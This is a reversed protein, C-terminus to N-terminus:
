RLPHEAAAVEDLYEDEHGRNRMTILLSGIGLLGALAAFALGLNMAAREAEPSVFALQSPPSQSVREARVAPGAPDTIVGNAVGDADYPGGDVITFTVTTVTVGDVEATGYTVQDDFNVFGSDGLYKRYTWRSTDYETDWYHTITASGGVAGCRIDVAHLGLEYNFARDQVSLEVETHSDVADIHNCEGDAETVVYRGLQPNEYTTVNVQRSDRKGDANADGNNPGLDEVAATVNDGDDIRIEPALDDDLLEPQFGVSVGDADKCDFVLEFDGEFWTLGTVFFKGTQDVDGVAPYPALGGAPETTIVVQGGTAGAPCAGLLPYSALATNEEPESAAVAAANRNGQDAALNDSPTREDAGDAPTDDAGDSEEAASSSPAAAPPTLDIIMGSNVTTTGPGNGARDFCAIVVDYEGETWTLNTFKFSGKRKPVAVAPYPSFGGAPETTVIARGGAADATCSGRVDADLSAVPTGPSDLWARGDAPATTDVQVHLSPSRPSENGAADVETYILVGGGEAPASDITVTRNGVDICETINLLRNTPSQQLYLRLESGTESCRVRLELSEASTTNDRDSYGTDSTALLDPRRGPAEPPCGDGDGDFTWSYEDILIQRAAIGECSYRLGSVRFHQGELAGTEALNVLLAGYNDASLTAGNVMDDLNDLSSLDLASLDGDFSTAGHFMSQMTTVKSTDWASIDPNAARAGYFMHNMHTVNGTDWGSTDPNAEPALYFMGQMHAVKSTDWGSTDPNARTARNFMGQMTTVNSTDWGSTDPQAVRAYTFMQYMTTVDATDWGSTDPQAVRADYFTRYMSTASGTDWGSTDPDAVWAGYFMNNMNTVNSTDWNSTDPQAVRAKYFIAGMDTVNSTDWGSTDPNAALATHFMGNMNTVNATDWGSTNPNAERAYTFMQFMTTVNSTDWGSTAPQAVRADYFMRYMTTVNATNWGSTDPNAVIAKYFMYAMNTVNGTDWGSTDPNAALATHFMGAMNTVNATNWGSTNPNAERAYTFMQFMTTVNSTDWGSTAPQAVRADYFM